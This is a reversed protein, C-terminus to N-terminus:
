HTNTEQPQQFLYWSRFRTFCCIYESVSSSALLRFDFADAPGCQRRPDLSSDTKQRERVSQHRRCDKAQLQTAGTEAGTKM